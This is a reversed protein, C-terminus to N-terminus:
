NEKTESGFVGYCVSFMWNHGDISTASALQGKWKGTLHTSDVGLVPRCGTLFDNVCAKLTVFMRTFRMKEGVQEFQIDVLSGPNTKEVEAKFSFAHEFSNDWRGQLEDLAMRRGDWVVWNSIKMHYQEELRKRLAVVGITPDKALWNIVRDRVWHNNTMINKEVQGTSACTHEEPIKKIKWTKGDQLQLAHIRWKCGEAQCNGRYRKSESYPAAIEYEHLIAYQRIAKKFSDGDAFTVGVEITPNELDTAHVMTKCGEIDDVVLDDKLGVYQVGDDSESDSSNSLSPKYPDEDNM